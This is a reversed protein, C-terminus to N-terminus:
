DRVSYFETASPSLQTYRISLGKARGFNRKAYTDTTIASIDIRCKFNYYIPKYANLTPLRYQPFGSVTKEENPSHHDKLALRGRRGPTFLRLLLLRTAQFPLLEPVLPDLEVSIFAAVRFEEKTLLAYTHASASNEKYRQLECEM